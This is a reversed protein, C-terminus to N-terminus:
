DDRQSAPKSLQRLALERVRASRGYVLVVDGTRVLTDPNPDGVFDGDHRRIGLVTVGEDALHLEGLTRGEVWDGKHARFETISYDAEFQVLTTVETIDLNTFRRLAARTISAIVRNAASLHVSILLLAVGAALEGSRQLTKVAPSHGFALIFSGIGTIVGANGFTMLWLVIRRRTPHNTIDESEITTFGVGLLASRAQFEASARSMGTVELAVAAVRAVTLFVAILILFSILAIV